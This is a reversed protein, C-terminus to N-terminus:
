YYLLELLLQHLIYLFLVCMSPISSKLAKTTKGTQSDVKLVGDKKLRKAEVKHWQGDNYKTKSERTAPGSGLDYQFVVRGEKMEVAFYDTPDGALFILGDEAFTKFSLSATMTLSPRVRESDLIVYGDGNFQFGKPAEGILKDRFFVPNGHMYSLTKILSDSSAFQVPLIVISLCSYLGQQVTPVM